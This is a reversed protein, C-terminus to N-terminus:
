EGWDEEIEPAPGVRPADNVELVEHEEGCSECAIIEGVMVDGPLVLAASCMLCNSKRM